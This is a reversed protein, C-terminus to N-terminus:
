RALLKIVGCSRVGDHMGSGVHVVISISISLSFYFSIQRAVDPSPSHHKQLLVSSTQFLPLFSGTLCVIECTM